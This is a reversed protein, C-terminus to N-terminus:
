RSRPLVPMGPRGSPDGRSEHVHSQTHTHQTKRRTLNRLTPVEWGTAGLPAPVQNAAVHHALIDSCDQSAAEADHMGLLAAVADATVLRSGIGAHMVVGSPVTHGPGGDKIPLVAQRLQATTIQPLSPLLRGIWFRQQKDMAAAPLTQEPPSSRFRFNEKTSSLPLTSELNLALILCVCSSVYERKAM